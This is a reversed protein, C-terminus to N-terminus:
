MFAVQQAMDRPVRRGGDAHVHWCRPARAHAYAATGVAHVQVHLELLQTDLIAVLPKRTQTDLYHGVRENEEQLRREVHQLYTPVATHM